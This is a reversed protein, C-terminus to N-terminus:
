KKSFVIMNTLKRGPSALWSGNVYLTSSAGGDLNMANECGLAAMVKSLTGLTCTCSVIVVTGDTKVGLAMRARSGGTFSTDLFGENKYTTANGYAKGNKVVTPGASLSTQIDQVASGEYAVDVRLTDGPKADTFLKEEVQREAREILLFGSSPIPVNSANSYVNTVKGNGDVALGRFIKGDLVSKGFARTYIMRTADPARVPRNTSVRDFSAYKKGNKELTVTQNITMFQISAKGNKDVVFAPKPDVPNNYVRVVKGGSVIGSSTSLDSGSNFDAGNVAVYGNNNKIINSATDNKYFQNGALVAKAAYGKSPDLEVGRVSVGAVTKRFTVPAKFVPEPPKPPEPPEPIQDGEFPAIDALRCLMAAAQHRPAKSGPAFTGDTNGNMIGAKQCAAVDERAWSAIKDQDKFTILPKKETLDIKDPYAKAARVMFAAAEQRTVPGNPDFRGDSGNAIGHQAAWNVYPDYWQSSPVDTFLNMGKYQDIESQPVLSAALMKVFEARSVSINPAFTTDSTGKIIGKDAMAYVYGAYWEKKPVDHFVQVAASATAVPLASAMLVCALLFSCVRKKM